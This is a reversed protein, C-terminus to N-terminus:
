KKPKKLRSIGIIRCKAAKILDKSTNKLLNIKQKAWYGTKKIPKIIVFLAKKIPMLVASFVKLVFSTLRYVGEVTYQSLTLFYVVAGCILAVVEYARLKANNIKFMTYYVIILETLWLLLDQMVIIGNGSKVCRRFGRFLDFVVGTVSGCLFMCVVVFLQHSVSLEM